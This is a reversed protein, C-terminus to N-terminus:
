KDPMCQSIPPHPQDSTPPKKTSPWRPTVWLPDQACSGRAIRRAKKERIYPTVTWCVPWRPPDFHGNVHSFYIVLLRILSCPHHSPEKVHPFSHDFGCGLINNMMIM